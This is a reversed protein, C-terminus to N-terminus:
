GRRPRRRRGPSGPTSRPASFRDRIAWLARRHAKQTADISRGMSVAVRSWPWKAIDRRWVVEAQLPTLVRIAQSVVQRLRRGSEAGVRPLQSDAVPNGHDVYRAPARPAVESCLRESRRARAIAKAGARHVVTRLMSLVREPHRCGRLMRMRDHLLRELVDGRVEDQESPRLNARRSYGAVMGEMHSLLRRWPEDAGDILGRVDATRWESHAPDAM